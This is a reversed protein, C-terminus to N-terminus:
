INEYKMERAEKQLEKLERSYGIIGSDETVETM